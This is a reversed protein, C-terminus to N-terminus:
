KLSPDPTMRLYPTVQRFGKPFLTKIEEPNTVSPLIVCEEGKVWNVPTAVKHNDTLQLSDLVRLIETFNRGTSAPYTIILRIKKKPDIVFVSRVTSTDGTLPHIMGYLESVHHDQDGIMPFDLLVNGVINIDPIWKAHDAVSGVSLGILKAGRRSFEGQLKAAMGLETTCVPTFDKPHSFFICWSDALWKHFSIKGQTTEAAFDPAMAGLQILDKKAEIM